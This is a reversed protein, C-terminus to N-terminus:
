HFWPAAFYITVTGIAYGIANSFAVAIQCRRNGNCDLFLATSIAASFACLASATTSTFLLNHAIGYAWVGTTLECLYAVFAVLLYRKFHPM